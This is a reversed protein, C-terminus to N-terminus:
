IISSLWPRITSLQDRLVFNTVELRPGNPISPPPLSHAASEGGEIVGLQEVPVAAYIAAWQEPTHESSHTHVKSPNFHLAQIWLIPWWVKGYTVESEMNLM